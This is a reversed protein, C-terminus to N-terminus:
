LLKGGCMLDWLRKSDEDAEIIDKWLRAHKRTSFMGSLEYNGMSPNSLDEDYVIWFNGTGQFLETKIIKLKM